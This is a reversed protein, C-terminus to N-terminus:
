CRQVGARAGPWPVAAQKDNQREVTLMGDKEVLTIGGPLLATVKGKPGEVLM